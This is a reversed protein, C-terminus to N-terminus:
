IELTGPILTLMSKHGNTNVFKERVNQVNSTVPTLTPMIGHAYSKHSSGNDIKVQKWTYLGVKGLCKNVTESVSTPM